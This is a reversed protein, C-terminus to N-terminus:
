RLFRSLCIKSVRVKSFEDGIKMLREVHDCISGFSQSSTMAVIKNDKEIDKVICDVEAVATVQDKSLLTEVETCPTVPQSAERPDAHTIEIRVVIAGCQKSKSSERKHLKFRKDIFNPPTYFHSERCTLNFYLCVRPAVIGM